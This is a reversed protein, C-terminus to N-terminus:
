NVTCCGGECAVWTKADKENWNWRAAAAPIARGGHTRRKVCHVTTDNTESVMRMWWTTQGAATSTPDPPCPSAATIGCNGGVDKCLFVRNMGHKLPVKGPYDASVQVFAVPTWDGPTFTARDLAPHPIVTGLIDTLQPRGNADLTDLRQEDYWGKVAVVRLREPVTGQSNAIGPSPPVLSLAAGSTFKVGVEFASRSRVLGTRGVECWQDGCRIGIYQEHREADWDWRAVEPIDAALLGRLNLSPRVELLTGGIAGSDAPERCSSTNPGLSVMTASWSKPTGGDHWLYLCNFGPMIGLPRYAVDRDYNYIVAVPLARSRGPDASVEFRGGLTDAAWIAVLPGFSFEAHSTAGAAPGRVVFRQCDHYEPLNAIRQILPLDASTVTDYIGQTSDRVTYILISDQQCDMVTRPVKSKVAVDKEACAGLGVAAALGAAAIWGRLGL